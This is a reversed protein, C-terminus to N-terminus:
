ESKSLATATPPLMVTAFDDKYVTRWNLATLSKALPNSRTRVIAVDAPITSIYKQRQDPSALAAHQWFDPTFLQTRGDMFTQFHDGLRWELYGGWTFDCLLHHTQAPINRDVFDAALCPYNPADPGNRNLWSELSANSRPFARFISIGALALVVALAAVIPRRTLIADSLSPIVAAFIPAAIIAFVPSMRGMRFLLITSGALWIVEGFPSLPPRALHYIVCIFLLVVFAASINGMIGLYFPQFEAINSSHVMVDNAGYDFVSRLTGPLLPTLCCAILSLAFLLAGRRIHPSHQLLDGALLAGTWLPVFLAFFHINILIATIPPVLWVLKSRQNLRRDRLLLWAIFALIVLAATVPRFSLYALSFLGAIAAALASPFYRAHGHVRTSLELACLGILFIFASEMLAQAAIAARFGGIDWLKKMALEALWSYPTWPQRTSSFSLDDILPHPWSQQAIEAGVRLHWFCDPDLSDALIVKGAAVLSLLSLLLAFGLTPTPKPNLSMEPINDAIQAPSYQRNGIALQRNFHLSIPKEGQKLQCNAIPL